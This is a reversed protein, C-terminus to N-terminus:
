VPGKKTHVEKGKLESLVELALRVTAQAVAKRDTIEKMGVDVMQPRDNNDLHSFGKKM